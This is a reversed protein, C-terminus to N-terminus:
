PPQAFTSPLRTMSSLCQRPGISGTSSNSEGSANRSRKASSRPRPAAAPPKRPSAGTGSSRRYARAPCTAARSASPARARPTRRRDSGAGDPTEPSAAARRRLHPKRDLERIRDALRGPAAAIVGDRMVLTLIRANMVGPCCTPDVDLHQRRRFVRFARGALSASSRGRRVLARHRRRADFQDVLTSAHAPSAPDRDGAQSQDRRDAVVDGRGPRRQEFAAAADRRDANEVGAAKRRADGGLDLIEVIGREVASRLSSLNALRECRNASPAASCAIRSAPMAGVALSRPVSPSRPRCRCSPRRRRRDQRRAAANPPPRRAAHRGAQHVIGRRGIRHHEAAALRRRAQRQQRAAEADAAVRRRHM